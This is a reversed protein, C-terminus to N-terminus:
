PDSSVLARCASCIGYYELRFNEVQFGFKQKVESARITSGEEFDQIKGCLTCILNIHPVLNTEHRNDMAQFDLIKILGMRALTELTNYVTALSLGPHNKKAEQFVQQASPHADTTALYNLIAKRQRTIRYGAARLAKEMEQTKRVIKLGEGL